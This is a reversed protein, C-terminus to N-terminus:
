SDTVALLTQWRLEGRRRKRASPLHISSGQLNLGARAQARARHEYARQTVFMRLHVRSFIHVYLIRVRQVCVICALQGREQM